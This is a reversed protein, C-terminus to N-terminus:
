TQSAQLEHLRAISRQEELAFAAQTADLTTQLAEAAQLRELSRREEAAFALQTADLVQRLSQAAQLRDLSRAQEQALVGDTEDLRAQLKDARAEQALAGDRIVRAADERARVMAGVADLPLGQTSALADFRATARHLIATFDAEAVLLDGHVQTALASWASRLGGDVMVANHKLMPRVSAADRVPLDAGSFGLRVLAERLAKGRDAVLTGYDVVELPLGEAARLSELVHRLWLVHSYDAAFGDRRALSSAVEDPHRIAILCAPAIGKAVLAQRWLPFVRCMRPDKLAWPIRGRFFPLMREGIAAVAEGAADSQLWEPPMARIDEWGSNLGHLLAENIRVADAHEFYGEPNDVAAPVLEDGLAFGFEALAAATASTGSRHMGLVFVGSPPALDPLAATM